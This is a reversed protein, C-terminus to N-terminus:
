RRILRGILCSIGFAAIDAAVITAGVPTGALISLMM